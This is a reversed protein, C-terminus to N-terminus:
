KATQLVLAIADSLRSWETREVELQKRGAATLAYFKADRGKETTRWEARLWGRKELRHLAPYLSGQTVQLAEKSIQNLRQAIAYGHLPGLSAVKLILLDLTGQLLDTKDSHRPMRCM